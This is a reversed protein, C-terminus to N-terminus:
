FQTFEPTPLILFLLINLISWRDFLEEKILVIYNIHLICVFYLSADIDTINIQISKIQSTWRWKWCYKLLIMVGLKIPPLLRLVRLSGGVMPLCSTFKIVQPQSDLAGKKYNVFGPAFGRRIPSLSIHTTLYHTFYDQVFSFPM